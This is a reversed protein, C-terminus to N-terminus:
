HHQQQLSSNHHHASTSSHTLSHTLHSHTLSHILSHTLSHILSHTLTHSHPNVRLPSFLSSIVVFLSCSAPWAAAAPRHRLARLSRRLHLGHLPAYIRPVSLERSGYRREPRVLHRTVIVIRGACLCVFLCVSLCVCLCVSLCVSRCVSLCVSLLCVSLCVSPCSLYVCVCVCMDCDPHSRPTSPNPASRPLAGTTRNRPASDVACPVIRDVCVPASCRLLVGFCAVQPGQVLRGQM